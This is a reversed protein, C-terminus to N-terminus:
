SSLYRHIASVCGSGEGVAAAVRKMSGARVDGVAFIGPKSAQYDIGTKVFGKEDLDVCGDLWHTNPVAGTMMFLHEISEVTTKNTTGCHWQVRQLRGDGELGAIESHGHVTISPSEEIRHILYRSMTDALGARRVVIHVHRCGNALFVAAQGASNGGGVIVVEQDKCLLAEVHTAAYYIGAGVYNALNPLALARYEAGTAIVITRARVSRGDSLEVVYPLSECRLRVASDAIEIHAGFKQAQVMARGALAEGSIGTPFGLYNEIKSSSGAQGGPAHGELVLVNLGESAAYVAAALGSPGAGIVVVDRIECEDIPANLKLCEALASNSPNRFIEGGRCIVVPIDAVTIQFRELMQAIDPDHDVDTFTFPFGNRSLFQRIRLTGASHLSGILVLEGKNGELLGVRRLIFARMLLESLQADAGILRMLAARDLEIAEGSERVAIRVLAGAGRLTAVEGTFHGRTHVTVLEEGGPVPRLIEVAGSLVVLMGGMRDGPKVLEDGARLAVRKGYAEVRAMQADSLAPFMQDRRTDLTSAM